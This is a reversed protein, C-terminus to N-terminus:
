YPVLPCARGGAGAGAGADPGLFQAVTELMKQKEREATRYAELMPEVVNRRGLDVAMVGQAVRAVDSETQARGAPLWMHQLGM